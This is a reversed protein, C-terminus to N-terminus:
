CPSAGALLEQPYSRILLLVFYFSTVYARGDDSPGAQRSVLRRSQAEIQDLSLHVTPLDPRTLHSTLAKSATLLSSLEAAM